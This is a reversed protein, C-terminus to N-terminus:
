PRRPPLATNQAMVIRWAGDMRQLVFHIHTQLVESTTNDIGPPNATHDRLSFRTHVLAIDDTLQRVRLIDAALTSGAFITDFLYAHREVNQARNTFHMGIINIFESEEAFDAAWLEADMQNWGAVQREMMEHAIDNLTEALLLTPCLLAILLLRKM